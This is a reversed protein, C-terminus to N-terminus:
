RGGESAPAWNRWGIGPESLLSPTAPANQAAEGVPVHIEADLPVEFNRLVEIDLELGGDHVNQVTDPEVIRARTVVEDGAGTRATEARQWRLAICWACHLKAQPNIELRLRRAAVSTAGRVLGM